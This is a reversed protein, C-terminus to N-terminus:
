AGPVTNATGGRLGPDRPRGGLTRLASVSGCDIVASSAPRSGSANWVTANRSM